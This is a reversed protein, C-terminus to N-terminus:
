EIGEVPWTYARKLYTMLVDPGDLQYVDLVGRRAGDGQLLAEAPPAEAHQEWGRPWSVGRCRAAGLLGALEAALQQEAPTDDFALVASDANPLLLAMGPAAAVASAGRRPRRPSRRRAAPAPAPSGARAGAAATLGLAAALSNSGGKAAAEDEAAERAEMEKRLGGIHDRLPQARARADQYAVTGERWSGLRALAAPVGAAALTLVALESGVIVVDGSAALADPTLAYLHGVGHALWTDQLQGHSDLTYYRVDVLQGGSRHPLAIAAVRGRAPDRPHEVSAMGVGALELIARPVRM